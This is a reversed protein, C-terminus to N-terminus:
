PPMGRRADRMDQRLHEPHGRLPEHLLLAPVRIATGAPSRVRNTVRCGDSHILGKVLERPHCEVLHWQWAELEIKRLHKPGPGLQPFICPWHKWTATSIWSLRCAYVVGPRKGTVEAIATKCDEILRPYRSDQSIRLDGSTRPRSALSSATVWISASSISPREISDVITSAPSGTRHCHEAHPGSSRRIVQHPPHSEFGCTRESLPTQSWRTSREAVAAQGGSYRLSIVRTYFM